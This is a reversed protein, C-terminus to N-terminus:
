IREHSDSCELSRRSCSTNVASSSSTTTPGPFPCFFFLFSRLGLSTMSRALLRASNVIDRPVVADQSFLDSRVLDSIGVCLFCWMFCRAPSGCNVAFSSESPASDEDDVRTSAKSFPLEVLIPEEIDGVLFLILCSSSATLLLLSSTPSVKTFSDPAM